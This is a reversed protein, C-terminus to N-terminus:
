LNENYSDLSEIYFIYVHVYTHMFICMYEPFDLYECKSVLCFLLFAWIQTGTNNADLCQIKVESVRLLRQRNPNIM